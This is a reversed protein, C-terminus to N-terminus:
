VFAPLRKVMRKLLNQLTGGGGKNKAAEAGESGRVADATVRKMEDSRSSETNRDHWDHKTKHSSNRKGKRTTM